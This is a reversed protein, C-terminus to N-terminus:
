VAPSSRTGRRVSCLEEVDYVGGRADQGVDGARLVGFNAVACCGDDDDGAFYQLLDLVEDLLADAALGDDLAQPSRRVEGDVLDHFDCDVCRLAVLPVCEHLEGRRGHATLEDV